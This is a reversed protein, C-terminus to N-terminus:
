QTKAVSDQKAPNTRERDGGTAQSPMTTEVKIAGASPPTDMGPAGSGGTAGPPPAGRNVALLRIAGSLASVHRATAWLGVTAAAAIWVEAEALVAKSLADSGYTSYLWDDIGGFLCVLLIVVAGLLWGSFQRVLRLFSTLRPYETEITVLKGGNGAANDSATSAM